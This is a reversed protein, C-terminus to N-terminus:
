MSLIIPQPKIRWIEKREPFNDLHRIERLEDRQISQNLLKMRGGTRKGAKRSSITLTPLKNKKHNISRM